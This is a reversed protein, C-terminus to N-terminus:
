DGDSDESSSSVQLDEYLVTWPVQSRTREGNEQSAPCASPPTEREIGCGPAATIFRSIWCDGFIRTFQMRLPQGSVHAASPTALNFDQEMRPSNMPFETFPAKGQQEDSSQRTVQKPKEDREAQNITGPTPLGLLRHPDQNEKEKRTKLPQPVLLSYGCKNPCRSSRSDHGIAGCDKCKVM